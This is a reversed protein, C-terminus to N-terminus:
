RAGPSPTQNWYELEGRTLQDIVGPQEENVWGGLM